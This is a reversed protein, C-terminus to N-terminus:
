SIQTKPQTMRHYSAELNSLFKQVNCLDSEQLRQRMGKRLAGIKSRSSALDVATKIYNETNDAILEPLGVRTLLSVGVLGPHTEGRLTIVPVGMWFAECTTTTGNYPFPDLGIDIRRYADLHQSRSPAYGELDLRERPIGLRAFMKHYEERVRPDTFSKNKLFLRSTPVRMLIESWIAVVEETTKALYNFSGFTVYDNQLCPPLSVEQTSHPPTFCLFGGPLRELKETFYAEQGIPDAEMDTFRYDM